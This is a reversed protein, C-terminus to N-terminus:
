GSTPALRSRARAHLSRADLEDRRPQRGRVDAAWRELAQELFRLLATQRQDNCTGPKPLDVSAAETAISRAQDQYRASPPSLEGGDKACPSPSASCRSNSSLATRPRPGGFRESIGQSLGEVLLEVLVDDQDEVVDM